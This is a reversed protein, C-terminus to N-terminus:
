CAELASPSAVHQLLGSDRIVTSLVLQTAGHGVNHSVLLLYIESSESASINM